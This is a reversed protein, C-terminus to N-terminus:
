RVNREVVAAVSITKSMNESYNHSQRRILILMFNWLGDKLRQSRPFLSKITAIPM